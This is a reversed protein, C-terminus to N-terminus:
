LIITAAAKLKGMASWWKGYERQGHLKWDNFIVCFGHCMLIIEVLSLVSRHFEQEKNQIIKLSVDLDTEHLIPVIIQASMEALHTQKSFFRHTSLLLSSTPSPVKCKTIGSSVESDEMIVATPRLCFWTRLHSKCYFPYPNERFIKRRPSPIKLFLKM